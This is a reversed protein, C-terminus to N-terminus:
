GWPSDLMGPTGLLGDLVGCATWVTFNAQRSIRVSHLCDPSLVPKSAIQSLKWLHELGNTCTLSMPHFRISLVAADAAKSTQIIDVGASSQSLDIERCRSLAIGKTALKLYSTVGDFNSLEFM